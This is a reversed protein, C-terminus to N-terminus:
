PFPRIQIGHSRNPRVLRLQTVAPPSSRWLTHDEGYLKGFQSGLVSRTYNQVADWSGLKDKLRMVGLQKLSDYYTDRPKKKRTLDLESYHKRAWKKFDNIVKEIGGRWDISFPVLEELSTRMHNYRIANLTNQNTEPRLGRSIGDPYRDRTVTLLRKWKARKSPRIKQWRVDPFEPLNRNVIRRCRCWGIVM